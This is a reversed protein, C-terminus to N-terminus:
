RRLPHSESAERHLCRGGSRSTRREHRTGKVSTKEASGEKRRLVKPWFSCSCGVCEEEGGGEKM